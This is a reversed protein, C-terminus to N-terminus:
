VETTAPLEIVNDHDEEYEVEHEADPLQSPDFAVLPVSINNIDSTPVNSYKNTQELELEAKDKKFALMTLCQHFNIETVREM